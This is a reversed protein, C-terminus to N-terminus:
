GCNFLFNEYSPPAEKDVGYIDYTKESVELFKM